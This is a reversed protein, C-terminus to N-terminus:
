ANAALLDACRPLKGCPQELRTTAGALATAARQRIAALEANTVLRKSLAAYPPVAHSHQRHSLIHIAAQARRQAGIRGAQRALVSGSHAVLRIRPRWLRAGRRRLNSRLRLVCGRALGD